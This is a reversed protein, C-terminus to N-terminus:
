DRDQPQRNRGDPFNVNLDEINSLMELVGAQVGSPVQAAAVPGPLAVWKDRRLRETLDDDRTGPRRGAKRDPRTPETGPLDSTGVKAANESLAILLLLTLPITSATIIIATMQMLELTSPLANPLVAPYM